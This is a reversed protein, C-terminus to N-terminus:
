KLGFRKLMKPSADEYNSTMEKIATLSAADITGKSTEKGFLAYFRKKTIVKFDSCDVYRDVGELFANDKAMIKYHANQRKQPLNPNINSDVLVFGIANGESDHGLVVFYKNRGDDGPSKGKVGEEVGLHMRFVSGEVAQSSTLNEMSEASLLDKLNAM